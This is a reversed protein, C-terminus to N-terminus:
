AEPQTPAGGYLSGNRHCLVLAKIVDDDFERGARQALDKVVDKPGAGARCADEFANVVILIRAMIPTDANAVKGPFGSGDAREHHLRIGPLVQEFGEIGAFIRECAGM